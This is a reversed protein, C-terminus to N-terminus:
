RRRVTVPYNKELHSILSERLKAVETTNLSEFAIRILVSKRAVGETEELMYEEVIWVDAIKKDFTKIANYADGAPEKADILFAIDEIIKNKIESKVRKVNQMGNPLADICLTFSDTRIEGAPVNDIHIVATMAATDERESRSQLSAEDVPMSATNAQSVYVRVRDSKKYTVNEVGLAVFLGSLISKLEDANQTADTSGNHIVELTRVEKYREGQKAVEYVNGIEFISVSSIGHKKYTQVIPALTEYIATRLADKESTLANQLMIQNKQNRNQKVFSDTIHEHLGLSALADRIKEELLYSHPTIEKPPAGQIPTHPINAYNSIRLIDSVVDDEVEVDTRFYPVELAWGSAEEKLIKYELSILIKRVVEHALDLGSVQKIRKTRLEMQKPQQPNPYYDNNEYYQGGALDLILRTAREIAVQTSHPHLFKDTRQVTENYVKLRRSTQRINTQNYNGADLVIDQTSTDIATKTSGVVAGLAILNGNEALILADEDVPIKTGDLTTIHEGSKGRRLVIEQKTFKALDQAHMPQGYELMVYNTIDVINNISSMGYTELRDKLWKPSEGVRIERFVRTNFRRVLDPAEVKIEVLQNKQPRKGKETYVPPLKLALNEMAALDRACGIISLWDSRDMRHELDLVVGDTPKDLMLGLATFEEALEDPTKKTDVYEKLWEIPIKM